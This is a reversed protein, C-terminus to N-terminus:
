GLRDRFHREALPLVISIRTGVGPKSKFSITGQMAEIIRISVSTGLGTGKEKTSYFLTGLRNLEQETMGRGTDAITVHAEGPGANLAVKVIGGAKTAEIANKILNLLAQQLRAKDTRLSLGEELQMEVLIGEKNALPDLLVLINSILLGLDFAEIKEFQPRSVSLYDNIIMEARGLEELMIPIHSIGAEKRELSLQLFGKVVTLPNRIEHAISAALEGVVQLKEGRQLEIKMMERELIAENLMISLGLGVIYAAGFFLMQLLDPWGIRESGFLASYVGIVAVSTVLPWCGIMLAKAIRGRYPLAGIGSGALWPVIAALLISIHGVVMEDAGVYTRIALICVLVLLGAKRGCYLFAIVLPIYRLDFYLNAEHVSTALCVMASLGLLFGYWLPTQRMRDYFIGYIFTPVLVFLVDLLLIQVFM